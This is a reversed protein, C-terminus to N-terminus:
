TAVFNHEEKMIDLVQNLTKDEDIYLRKITPMHKSWDYRSPTRGPKGVRTTLTAAAAAAAAAPGPIAAPEADRSAQPSYASADQPSAPQSFSRRDYSDHSSESSSPSVAAMAFSLKATGSPRHEWSRPVGHRSAGGGIAQPPGCILSM